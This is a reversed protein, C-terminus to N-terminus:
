TITFSHAQEKALRVELKDAPAGLRGAVWARLVLLTQAHTQAITLLDQKPRDPHKTGM